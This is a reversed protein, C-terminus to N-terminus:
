KTLIVTYGLPDDTSGTGSLTCVHAAVLALLM